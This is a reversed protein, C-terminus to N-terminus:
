GAMKGPPKASSSDDQRDKLTDDMIQIPVPRVVDLHVDRQPFAIVIGAATLLQEVQYRLDSEIRKREALTRIEIWVHLEFVLSNDGFDTFWVFPAPNKMVLGHDEAAKILLKTAERTPSGYAVGVVIKTRVKEDSLTFNLVNNELFKSNPVIIDLNDGTRVRTSRAGIAIVNGVLDDLKVLDGVQIPREALLILGSIFNNIITQSGFGVGIALAGGMLTFVTVPVNAFHLALLGFIVVLAYFVISRIAAAAGENMRFRKLLRNGVITSIVRAAYFGVILLMLGIVVKGVTIPKDDISTIEIFWLAQINKWIAALREGFTWSAIEGTIEKILSNHIALLSNISSLNDDHVLMMGRLYDQHATLFPKLNQNEPSLSNANQELATAEKRLDEVNLQLVRKQRELDLISKESEELWKSLEENSAKRNFIAYRKKWLDRLSALRSLKQNIVDLELQRLQRYSRMAALRERHSATENEAQPQNQLQAWSQEAAQAQAEASSRARRLEVEQREIQVLIEQLDQQTFTVHQEWYEVKRQDIKFSLQAIELKKRETGLITENLAVQETSLKVELELANVASQLEAKKAPTTNKELNERALRLAAEKESQDKKATELTEAATNVTDELSRLRTQHDEIRSKLQDLQIFTMGEGSALDAELELNLENARQTLDNLTAIATQQRALIADIKKRLEVERSVNTPEVKPETAQEQKQIAQSLNESNEQRKKQIDNEDNRSPVRAIRPSQQVGSAHGVMGPLPLIWVSLILAFFLRHM